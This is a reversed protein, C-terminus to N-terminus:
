NVNLAPSGWEGGVGWLHCLAFARRHFYCTRKLGPHHDLLRGREPRFRPPPINTKAGRPRRLRQMKTSRYNLVIIDYKGAGGKNSAQKLNRIALGTPSFPSRSTIVFIELTITGRSALPQNVMLGVPGPRPSSLRPAWTIGAWPSELWRTTAGMCLKVASGLARRDSGM